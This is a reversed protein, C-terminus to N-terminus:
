NEWSEWCSWATGPSCLAPWLTDITPDTLYIPSGVFTWLRSKPASKQKFQDKFVSFVPCTWVPKMENVVLQLGALNIPVSNSALLQAWDCILPMLSRSFNATLFFVLSRLLQIKVPRTLKLISGTTAMLLWIHNKECIAGIVLNYNLLGNKLSDLSM